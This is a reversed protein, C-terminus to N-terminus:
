QRTGMDKRKESWAHLSQDPFGHLNPFQRDNCLGSALGSIHSDNCAVYTYWDHGRGDHRTHRVDSYLRPAVLPRFLWPFTVIFIAVLFTSLSSSEVHKLRCWLLWLDKWPEDGVHYRCGLWNGFTEFEGANCWQHNQASAYIRIWEDLLADCHIFGPLFCYSLLESSLGRCKKDNFPWHYAKASPHQERTLYSPFM